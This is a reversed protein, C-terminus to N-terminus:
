FSQFEGQVDFLQQLCMRILLMSHFLVLHAREGQATCQFLFPLDRKSPPWAGPWLFSRPLPVCGELPLAPDGPGQWSIPGLRRGDPRTLLLPGLLQVRPHWDHWSLCRHSHPARPCPGPDPPPSSPSRPTICSGTLNPFTPQALQRFM